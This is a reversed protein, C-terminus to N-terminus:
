PLVVAYRWIHIFYRSLFLTTFWLKLRCFINVITDCLIWLTFSDFQSCMSHDILPTSKSLVCPVIIYWRTILSIASQTFVSHVHQPLIMIHVWYTISLLSSHRFVNNECQPLVVNHTVLFVVLNHDSQTCVTTSDWQLCMLLDFLTNFTHVCQTSLIPYQIIVVYKRRCKM